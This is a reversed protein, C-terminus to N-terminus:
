APTMMTIIAVHAISAMQRAGIEPDIEAVAVVQAVGILGNRVSWATRRGASYTEDGSIYGTPNVRNQSPCGTIAKAVVLPTAVTKISAQDTSRTRISPGIRPLALVDSWLVRAWLGIPRLGM